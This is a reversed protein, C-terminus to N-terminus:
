GITQQSLNVYTHDTTDNFAKKKKRCTEMPIGRLITGSMDYLLKIVTYHTQMVNSAPFYQPPSDLWKV